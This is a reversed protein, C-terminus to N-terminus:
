YQEVLTMSASARVTMAERRCALVTNFVTDSEAPLIM